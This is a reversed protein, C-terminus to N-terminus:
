RLRLTLAIEAGGPKPQLAFGATTLALGLGSLSYGGLYLARILTADRRIAQERQTDYCGRGQLCAGYSSADYPNAEFREQVFYGTLIAGGGVAALALGTGWIAPRGPAARRPTATRRAAPAPETPENPEAAATYTPTSTFLTQAGILERLETHVGESTQWQLLHTGELTELTTGPEAQRGDVYLPHEGEVRVAVRAADLRRRWTQHLDALKPGHAADPVRTPDATVTRIVASVTGDSDDMALSILAQLEYLALIEEATLFREQCALDTYAQRAHTDAAELEADNFASWAASMQEALDTCGAHASPSLTLAALTALVSLARSV